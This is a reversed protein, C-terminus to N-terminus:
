KQAGTVKYNYKGSENEFKGEEKGGQIKWLCVQLFRGIQDKTRGEICITAKM